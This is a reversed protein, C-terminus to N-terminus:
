ESPGPAGVGPGRDSGGRQRLLTTARVALPRPRGPDRQRLAGVPDAGGLVGPRGAASLGSAGDGPEGAEPPQLHPGLPAPRRHPADPDRDARGARRGPASLAGTRPAPTPPSSYQNCDHQASVTITVAVVIAQLPVIPLGCRGGLLG